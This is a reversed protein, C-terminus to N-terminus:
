IMGYMQNIKIFMIKVLFFIVMIGSLSSVNIVAGNKREVM